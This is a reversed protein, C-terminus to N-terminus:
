WDKLVPTEEAAGRQFPFLGQPADTEEYRQLLGEAQDPTMKGGSEDGRRERDGTRDESRPSRGEDKGQEPSSEPGENKEPKRGRDGPKKGAPTKKEGEARSQSPQRRAKSRRDEGQDQGGQGSSKKRDASSGKRHQEKKSRSSELKKRLRELQRKVFDHNFRADADKPDGKLVEEYQSLSQELRRIAGQLDKDEVSMGHKYLANGLNYRAAARLRPDDTLLAKQLAAVARPYDGTKYLATGLNFNIIASEPDKKLVAEYKRVAEAYASKRFLENGQTVIGRIGGLAWATGATGWLLGCLVM